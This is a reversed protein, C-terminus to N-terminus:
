FGAAKLDMVAEPLREIPLDVIVQADEKFPYWSLTFTKKDAPVIIMACYRAIKPDNVLSKVYGPKSAIKIFWYVTSLDTQIIKEPTLKALAATPTIATPAAQVLSETM